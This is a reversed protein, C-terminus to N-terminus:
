DKMRLASKLEDDPRLDGSRFQMVRRRKQNFFYSLHVLTGFRDSVELATIVFGAKLKPIIISNNTTTHRSLVVQFGLRHVRDLVEYMLATYLGQRRHEPLIASNRMYFTENNHQDGTFWGCFEDGKFICLNMRILQSMNKQLARVQSWEEESFIKQFDMSTDNDTFIKVGWEDWLKKFEETPLEVFRYGPPLAKTETNM